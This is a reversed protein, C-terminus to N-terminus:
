NLESNPVLPSVCIGDYFLSPYVLVLTQVSFWAYM